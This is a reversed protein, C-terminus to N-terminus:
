QLLRARRSRLGLAAARARFTHPDVKLLRAARAANGKAEQLARAYLWREQARLHARVDFDERLSEDGPMPLGARLAENEADIRLNIAALNKNQADLVRIRREMAGVNIIRPFEDLALDVERWPRTGPELLDRPIADLMRAPLLGSQVLLIWVTQMQPTGPSLYVYYDHADRGDVALITQCADSTVEFVERYDTVGRLEVPVLRVDVASLHKACIRRVRSARLYFDDIKSHVTYLLYVRGFPRSQLISLIPGIDGRKTRPNNWDPDRQGVWTLLVDV